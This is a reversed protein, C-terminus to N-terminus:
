APINAAAEQRRLRSWGVKWVLGLWVVLPFILDLQNLAQNGTTIRLLPTLSVLYAVTGWGISEDLLLGWGFCLSMLLHPSTLYPSLLNSSVAAVALGLRSLGTRRLSVLTGLAIAIWIGIVIVQPVSDSLSGYRFIRGAAPM